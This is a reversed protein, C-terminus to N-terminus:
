RKPVVHVEMYLRRDGNAVMVPDMFEHLQGTSEAWGTPYKFLKRLKPSQPMVWLQLEWKVEAFEEGLLLWSTVDESVETSRLEKLIDEEVAEVGDGSGARIHFNTPFGIDKYKYKDGEKILTHHDVRELDLHHVFRVAVDIGAKPFAKMGVLPEVLTPHYVNLTYTALMPVGSGPQRAGSKLQEKARKLLEKSSRVGAYPGLFDHDKQFEVDECEYDVDGVCYGGFEWAPVRLLKLASAEDQEAKDLYGVLTNNHALPTTVAGSNSTNAAGQSVKKPRSASTYGLRFYVFDEPDHERQGKHTCKRHRVLGQAPLSKSGPNVNDDLKLVVDIGLKLNPQSLDAFLDSVTLFRHGSHRLQYLSIGCVQQDIALMYAVFQKSSTVTNILKKDKALKTAVKEAVWEKLAVVSYHARVNNVEEVWVASDLQTHGSSSYALHLEINQSSASDSVDANTNRASKSLLNEKRGEVTPAAKISPSGTTSPPVFHSNKQSATQLEHNAAQKAIEKIRQHPPQLPNTLLNLTRDLLTAPRLSEFHLLVEGTRLDDEFLPDFMDGLEHTIDCSQTSWHFWVEYDQSSVRFKKFVHQKVDQVNTGPTPSFEVVKQGHCVRFRWIAQDHSMCATNCVTSASPATSSPACRKYSTVSAIQECVVSNTQLMTM